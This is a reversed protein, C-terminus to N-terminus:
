ALARSSPVHPSRAWFSPGLASSASTPWSWGAPFEQLMAKLASFQDEMAGVTVHEIDYRIQAPGPPLTRREPFADNLRTGDFDARGSLTRFRFGADEIRSKFASASIVAVDHGADVLLRAVSLIPNLHGAAPAAALIIKM